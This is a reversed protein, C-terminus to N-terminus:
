KSNSLKGILCDITWDSAQIVDDIRSAYYVPLEVSWHAYADKLHSLDSHIRRKAKRWPTSRLHDLDYLISEETKMAADFGAVPIYRTASHPSGSPALWACDYVTFIWRHLDNKAALTQPPLYSVLREMHLGVFEGARTACDKFADHIRTVESKPDFDRYTIGYQREPLGPETRQQRPGMYKTKYVRMFFVHPKGGIRVDLPEYVVFGTQETRFHELEPNWHLLRCGLMPRSPRTGSHAEADRALERLELQIANLASYPDSNDSTMSM